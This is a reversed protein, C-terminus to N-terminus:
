TSFSCLCLSSLFAGAARRNAPSNWWRNVGSPHPFPIVPVGRVSHVEFYKPREVGFAQSTQKGLVVVADFPSLDLLLASAAAEKMPFADGKGDKGPFSPLLNATRFRAFFEDESIDMLNALRKAPSGSLAPRSDDLPLSNPAQGVFLINM